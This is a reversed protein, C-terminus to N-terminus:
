RRVGPSSEQRGPRWAAGVAHGDAIKHVAKTRVKVAYLAAKAGKGSVFAIWQGDPSWSVDERLGGDIDALRESRQDRVSLLRLETGAPTDGLYAISSGDPSWAPHSAAETAPTLRVENRGDAAILFLGPNPGRHGTFLITKGDASWRPSGGHEVLRVPEGGSAAILYIEPVVRNAGAPRLDTFAIRKGDPSWSPIEDRHGRSTLRKPNRGDSDMVYLGAPDDRLFAIRKGDPSWSPSRCGGRETATLNTPNKGDADMVFIDWGVQGHKWYLLKAGDPAWALPRDVKFPLEGTLPRLGGGDANVIWVKGARMFAISGASPDNGLLCLLIVATM